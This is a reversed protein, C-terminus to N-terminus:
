KAEEEPLSKALLELANAVQGVGLINTPYLFLQSNESGFRPPLRLRMADRLLVADSWFQQNYQEMYKAHLKDSEELWTKRIRNQEEPSKTEGIKKDAEAGLQRDERAFSRVLDRIRSVAQLSRSRLEQNSLRSYATDKSPALRELLARSGLFWGAVSGALLGILLLSVPYGKLTRWRSRFWPLM